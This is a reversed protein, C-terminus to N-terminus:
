LCDEGVENAGAVVRLYFSFISWLFMIAYKVRTVRSEPFSFASLKWTSKKEQAMKAPGKGRNSFVFAVSLVM